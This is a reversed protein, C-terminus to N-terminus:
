GINNFKWSVALCVYYLIVIINNFFNENITIQYLLIFINSHAILQKFDYAIFHFPNADLKIGNKTLPIIIKNTKM